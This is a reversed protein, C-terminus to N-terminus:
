SLVRPAKSHAAPITEELASVDERANLLSQRIRVLVYDVCQRVESRHLGCHQLAKLTKARETFLEGSSIAGRLIRLLKEQKKGNSTTFGSNVALNLDRAIRNLIYRNEPTHFVNDMIVDEEESSSEPVTLSINGNAGIRKLQTIITNCIVTWFFAFCNGRGPNFRPLASLIKVACEQRIDDRYEVDIRKQAMGARVQPMINEIIENRLRRSPRKQSVYRSVLETVKKANFRLPRKPM